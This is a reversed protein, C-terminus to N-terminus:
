LLKVVLKHSGQGASGIKAETSRLPEARDPLLRPGPALLSPSTSLSAFYSFERSALRECNKKFSFIQNV